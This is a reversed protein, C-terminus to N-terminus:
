KTVREYLAALENAMIEAAGGKNADIANKFFHTAAQTGHNNKLAHGLEVLHFYKSPRIKAQYFEGVSRSERLTDGKKIGRKQNTRKALREEVNKRSRRTVTEFVSSNVGVIGVVVKSNKYRIIKHEMAKRLLGLHIPTNAKVANTLHQMAKPIIRKEMEEDVKITGLAELKKLMQEVPTIDFEVQFATTSHNGNRRLRRKADQLRQATAGM